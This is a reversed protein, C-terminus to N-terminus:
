LYLFTFPQAKEQYQLLVSQERIHKLLKKVFLYDWDQDMFTPLKPIPAIFVTSFKILKTQPYAPVKIVSM